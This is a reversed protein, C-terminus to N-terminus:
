QKAQGARWMFWNPVGLVPTESTVQFGFRQYLQVNEAKDTELYAAGGQEDVRECFYTLLQSGIGQGQREPLVAFPGYHWHPEKPDMKAWVPIWKMVRFIKTKLIMIMKPLLPLMKSLPLQCDPWQVMRMGGVIQGDEKAVFTRGPLRELALQMFKKYINLDTGM